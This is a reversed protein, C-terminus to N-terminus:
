YAAQRLGKGEQELHHCLMELLRQLAIEIGTATKIPELCPLREEYPVIPQLPIITEDEQGLAQDLRQLLQQGFRRRLAARPINIFSKVNRFGLKELRELIDPDLRLVNPPMPLLAPVQGGPAVIAGPTARAAAWAMGISDAIAATTDYGRSRLKTLIDRLYHEEDGWLHACGSIDLTLGNPMDVAVSPTYRICWEGIAHLLKGDQGPIEDAVQLEPIIAKADAAAMGISMGQREAEINTATIIVRGRMKATLVLPKM